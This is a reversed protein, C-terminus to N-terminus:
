PRSTVKQGRIVVTGSWFPFAGQGIFRLAGDVDVFSDMWEIKGAGPIKLVIHYSKLPVEAKPAYPGPLAYANRGTNEREDVEIDTGLDSAKEFDQQLRTEFAEFRSDYKTTLEKLQDNRFNQQIWADKDPLALKNVLVHFEETHGQQYARLM